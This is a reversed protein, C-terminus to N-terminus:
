AEGPGRKSEPGKARYPNSKANELREQEAKCYKAWDYLWFLAGAFNGAMLVLGITKFM